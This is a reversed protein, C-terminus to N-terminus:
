NTTPTITPTTTTANANRSYYLSFVNTKIEWSEKDNARRNRPEALRTVPTHSRTAAATDSQPMAHQKKEIVHTRTPPDTCDHPHSLIHM